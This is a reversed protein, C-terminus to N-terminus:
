QALYVCDVQATVELNGDPLQTASEMMSKEFRTGVSPMDRLNSQYNAQELKQTRVGMAKALVDSKSQCDKAALEMAKLKLSEYDSSSWSLNQINIGSDKASQNGIIADLLAGAQDPKSSRVSVTHSVRTGVFKQSNQIYEYEPVVDYSVTQLNSSEVQLGTLTKQMRDFEAAVRGQAEKARQNKAWIVVFINVQNPASKVVGEGRVVLRSQGLSLCSFLLCMALTCVFNAKM